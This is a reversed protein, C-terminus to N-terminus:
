QADRVLGRAGLAQGITIIEHCTSCLAALTADDESGPEAHHVETAPAGCNRCRGHDRAMIRARTAPWGPPMARGHAGEGWTRPHEPCPRPRTCRPEPCSLPARTPM